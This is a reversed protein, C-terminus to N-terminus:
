QLYGLSKLREMDETSLQRDSEGGVEKGLRGQITRLKQLLDKTRRPYREAVNRM